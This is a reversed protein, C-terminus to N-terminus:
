VSWSRGIGIAEIERSREAIDAVNPPALSCWGPTAAPRQECLTILRAAHPLPLPRLVVGYLVGFIATTMGIGLALTLVATLTFSPRRLLSRAAHRLDPLLASM